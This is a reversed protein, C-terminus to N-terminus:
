LEDVKEILDSKILTYLTDFMELEEINGRNYIDLDSKPYVMRDYFIRISIDGSLDNQFRKIYDGCPAEEFGYKILEKLDINKKIKLM